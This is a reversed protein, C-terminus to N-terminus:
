AAAALDNILLDAAASVDAALRVHPHTALFEQRAARGIAADVLIVEIGAEALMDAEGAHDDIMHTVGYRRCITSKCTEFYTEGETAGVHEVPVPPLNAAKIWARTIPDVLPPRRTIYCALLGANYLRWAAEVSGPLPESGMLVDHRNWFGFSPKLQAAVAPDPHTFPDWYIHTDLIDEAPIGLDSAMARRAADIIGVIVNDLDCGVRM